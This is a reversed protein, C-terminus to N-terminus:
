LYWMKININTIIKGGGFSVSLIIGTCTIHETTDLEKCDWPSYGALPNGLCSDQLPNGNGEGPFRGLGSISGLRKHRRRQCALEKGHHRRPLGINNM